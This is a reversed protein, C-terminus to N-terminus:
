LNKGKKQQRDYFEVINLLMRIEGSLKSILFNDRKEIAYNYIILYLEAIDKITMDKDSFYDQLDYILQKNELERKVEPTLNPLSIKKQPKVPLKLFKILEEATPKVREAYGQKILKNAINLRVSFIKGRKIIRGKPTKYDRILKIKM